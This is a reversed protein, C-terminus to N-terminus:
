SIDPEFGRGRDFHSNRTEDFPVTLEISFLFPTSGVGARRRGSFEFREKGTLKLQFTNNLPAAQASSFSAVRVLDASLSCLYFPRGM